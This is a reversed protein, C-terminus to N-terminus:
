TCLEAYTNKLQGRRVEAKRWEFPHAQANYTTIFADIADRLQRPSTFSAGHLARRSLISFWIEIQNLWSARTPTFHFHVNPHRGLWRDHKPKHTNLNDLVVHIPQDAPYDAILENMFALFDRRRRRAYHGTKVWGTAVQLAGFLTTTGHRRYQHGFGALAQGNPLRLYGQARELAQIHPKEDVCLVVANEPPHLYLGVIDAAKPAFEPDTSVCFSHRRQLHIRHQRLVRWVQHTSVDALAAALLPATWTAQGAPPPQSVQDLVRHETEEDYRRPPGPRPADRLGAIGDTAFRIRWKSVTATRVGLHAAIHEGSQGQAAALVIQARVALRQETSTSRTWQELIGRDEATLSFPTAHRPM